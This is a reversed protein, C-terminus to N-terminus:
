ALLLLALNGYQFSAFSLAWGAATWHFSKLPKPMLTNFAVTGMASTGLFARALLQNGTAAAWIAAVGSLNSATNVCSLGAPSLVHWPQEVNARLAQGTARDMNEAIICSHQLGM